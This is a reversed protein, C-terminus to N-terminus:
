GRLPLLLILAGIAVATVAGTGGVGAFAGTRLAELGIAVLLTGVGIGIALVGHFLELRRTEPLHGLEGTVGLGFTTLDWVLAAGAVCAFVLAPHGRGLGIAAIVLGAAAIAPGGARNPLLGLWVAVVGAAGLVVFVLPGVSLVIALLWAITPSAFLLAFGLPVLLVIVVGVAIAASRRAADASVRRTLRRLLVAVLGALVSGIAIAVIPGLVYWTSLAELASRVIPNEDLVADHWGGLGVGLLVLLAVLTGLITGVLLRRVAAITREMAPRRDRRTMQVLPLWRLALLMSGATAAVVLLFGAVSVLPSTEDVLLELGRWGAIGVAVLAAVVVAAFLMSAYSLATGEVGRKVGDNSVNAWSGGMGLLALAFGSVALGERAVFPAVVILLATASGFTLLLAHSGFQEVFGRRNRELLGIGAIAMGVVTALMVLLSSEGMVVGAVGVIAVVVLTALWLSAARARGEDGIASPRDLRPGSIAM